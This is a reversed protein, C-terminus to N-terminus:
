RNTPDRMRYDDLQDADFETRRLTALMNNAIKMVEGREIWSRLAERVRESYDDLVNELDEHIFYYLPDWAPSDSPITTYDFLDILNRATVDAHKHQTAIEHFYMNRTTSLALTSDTFAHFYESSM